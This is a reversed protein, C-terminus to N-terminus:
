WQSAQRCMIIFILNVIYFNRPFTTLLLLEFAACVACVGISNKIHIYNVCCVSLGCCCRMPKTVVVFLLCVAVRHRCYMLFFASNHAQANGIFLSQFIFPLLLAKESRLSAVPSRGCWVSYRQRRHAGRVTSIVVRRSCIHPRQAPKPTISFVSHVIYLTIAGRTTQRIKHINATHHSEIM